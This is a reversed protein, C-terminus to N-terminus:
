VAAAPNDRGHSLQQPGGGVTGVSAGATSCGRDHTALFQHSQGEAVSAGSCDFDGPNRLSALILVAKQPLAANTFVGQLAQGVM